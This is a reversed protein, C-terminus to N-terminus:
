KRQRRLAAGAGVFVLGAGSLVIWMPLAPTVTFLWVAGSVILVLGVAMMIGSSNNM